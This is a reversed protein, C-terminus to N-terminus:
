YGSFYAHSVSGVSRIVAFCMIGTKVAHANGWCYGKLIYYTSRYREFVYPAMVIHFARFSNLCLFAGTKSVLDYIFDLTM